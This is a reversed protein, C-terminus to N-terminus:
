CRYGMRHAFALMKEKPRKKIKRAPAGVYIMADGAGRGADTLELARLGLDREGPGRALEVERRCEM